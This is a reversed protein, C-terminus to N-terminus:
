FVVEVDGVAVDEAFKGEDEEGPAVLGPGAGALGPAVEKGRPLVDVAWVHVDRTRKEEEEM